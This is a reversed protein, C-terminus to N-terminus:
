GRKRSRAAVVARKLRPAWSYWGNLKCGLTASTDWDFANFRGWEYPTRQLDVVLPDTSLACTVGAQKAAATLDGGSFGRHSGGFPFAFPFSEEGLEERLMELNTLLDNYFDRPRGRFDRHTHTHAGFEILGTGALEYVHRWSLPRYADSRVENRFQSGWLDFPFPADSGIYATNIFVTAPIQLEQLIPFADTYVSEFGDDFTVVFVRELVHRGRQVHDLLQTLPWPQFGQRLLGQLQEHFRNPTVNHQPKPVTPINQTIRHYTIIGPANGSRRGAVRNLASGSWSVARMMVEDLSDFWTPESVDIVEASDPLSAVPLGM